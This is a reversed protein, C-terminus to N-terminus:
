AKMILKLSDLLFGLVLYSFGKQQNKQLQEPNELISVFCQLENSKKIGPHEWTLHMSFTNLLFM